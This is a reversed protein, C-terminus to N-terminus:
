LKQRKVRAFGVCTPYTTTVQDTVCVVTRCGHLGLGIKLAVMPYKYRYGKDLWNKQLM